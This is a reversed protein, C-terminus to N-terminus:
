VTGVTRQCVTVCSHRVKVRCFRFHFDATGAAEDACMYIFYALKQECHSDTEVDRTGISLCTSKM